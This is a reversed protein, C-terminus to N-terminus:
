AGLAARPSPEWAGSVRIPRRPFRLFSQPEDLLSDSNRFLATVAPELRFEM